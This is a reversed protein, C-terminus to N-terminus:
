DGQPWAAVLVANFGEARRAGDFGDPEWLGERALRRLGDVSGEMAEFWYVSGVPAAQVASKPRQRALDWGSVVQARPVCASVLEARVGFLEWRLPASADAGGWDAGRRRTGAPLWGDPFIGPTMLVLRFRGTREIDSWPPDPLELACAEVEAARGDGGLRLIGGRPVLGDAGDVSVVFGHRVMPYDSQRFAVADTTYLHGELATRRPGDLAIGLRWDTKWIDQTSVLQERQIRSGALYSTLAARGLWSRAEPKGAGAARLIPLLPLGLSTRISGRLKAPGLIAVDVGRVVLDAPAPLLPEVGTASRRGVAFLGVRFAGPHEATGLCRALDESLSATGDAYHGPDVGHDVLMRSRLAGAALSPWPPMVVDGHSGPDGFLRNGRLYLVDVPTIFRHEAM